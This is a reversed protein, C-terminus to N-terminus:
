VFDDADDSLNLQDLVNQNRKIMKKKMIKSRYKSVENEIISCELEECSEDLNVNVDLDTPLDVELLSELLLSTHSNGNIDSKQLNSKNCKTKKRRFLSKNHDSM